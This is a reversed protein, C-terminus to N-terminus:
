FSTHSSPDSALRVIGLILLVAGVARLVSFGLQLFVSTGVFSSADSLRGVVNYAIPTLLTALMQVGAAAAILAGADARRKRVVTLAVILLAAELFFAIGGTILSGVTVLISNSSSL